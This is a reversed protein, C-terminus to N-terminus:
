FPTAPTEQLPERDWTLGGDSTSFKRGDATTVTATSDDTAQVAVLDASEPFTVRRWTRADTSLLVLGARGVLWCVSPTPSAGTTLDAIVQTQQPEWTAGGDASHQVLGPTPTIRWRSAPNSSVIEPMPQARLANAFTQERRAGGGLGAARDASAMPEAQPPPAAAPAPAAPASMAASTKREPAPPKVADLLHAAGSEDKRAVRGEATPTQLTAEASPVPSAAPAEAITGEPAAGRDASAPEQPRTTRPVVVAWLLAAAATATALPVLWRAVSGRRWWAAVPQAAPETRVMAALMAQCRACDAAHAEVAAREGATLLDDAWAALTEADLCSGPIM